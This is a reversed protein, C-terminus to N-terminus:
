LMQLYHRYQSLLWRLDNEDKMDVMFDYAYTKEKNYAGMRFSAQSMASIYELPLNEKSYANILIDFKRNLFEDVVDGGPKLHWNLNKRNFYSFNFNIARKPQDYYGLLVVHKREKKLSDAFLNIMSVQDPDSADFLIGIENSDTLNITKRPALHQRAVKRLFYFHLWRQIQKIM